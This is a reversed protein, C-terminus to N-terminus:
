KKVNGRSNSNKDIKKFEKIKEIDEATLLERETRRELGSLGVIRAKDIIKDRQIRSKDTVDKGSSAENISNIICNLEQQSVLGTIHEDSHERFQNLISQDPTFSHLEYPLNHLLIVIQRHDIVTKDPDRDKNSRFVRGIIQTLNNAILDMQLKKQQLADLNEDFNLAISPLFLSCDVMVFSVEPMDYAKCIASKAYTLRINDKGKVQTSKSVIIDKASEFDQGKFFSLNGNFEPESKIQEYTSEATHKTPEVWFIKIGQSLLYKVIKVKKDHSIKESLKLFTVNFKFPIFTILAKDVNFEYENALKTIDMALDAPITASAMVINDANSLVNNLITQNKARITPVVCAYKPFVIKNPKKM